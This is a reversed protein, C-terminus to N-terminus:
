LGYHTLAANKDGSTLTDGYLEGFSGYGYMTLDIDANDYMDDLGVWHGFEHTAINQIDYSQSSSCPSGNVIDTDPNYYPTYTWPYKTNFVTDINNVVGSSHNYWIYTVAVASKSLKGFFIGWVNDLKAKTINTNAGRIFSVKGNLLKGWTKFSYDIATNISEPSASPPFMGTNVQYVTVPNLKWGLTNVVAQTDQDICYSINNTSPKTIKQPHVIVRLRLHSNGPVEYDGNVEPLNEEIASTQITTKSAMITIALGLTLCFFFLRIFINKM